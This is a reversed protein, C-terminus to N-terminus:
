GGHHAFHPYIHSWYFDGIKQRLREPGFHTVIFGTLMTLLVAAQLALLVSAFMEAEQSM